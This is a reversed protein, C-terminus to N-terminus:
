HEHDHDKCAGGTSELKGDVYLQIVEEITGAAGVIVEIGNQEFLGVASGGMGGAIIVNVNQEKLFVPLFGPKHGPNAVFENGKIEKQEVDYIRFGDCYGFHASVLTGETAIAIRMKIGGNTQHKRM